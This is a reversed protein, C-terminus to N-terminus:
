QYIMFMFFRMLELYYIFCFGVIHENNLEQVVRTGDFDFPGRKASKPRVIAVSEAEDRESDNGIEDKEKPLKSVTGSFLHRLHVFTVFCFFTVFIVFGTGRHFLMRRKLLLM